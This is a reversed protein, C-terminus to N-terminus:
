DFNIASNASVDLRYNLATPLGPFEESCKLDILLVIYVRKVLSEQHCSMCSFPSFFVNKCGAEERGPRRTSDAPVPTM